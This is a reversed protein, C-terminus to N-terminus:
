IKKLYLNAVIVNVSGTRVIPVANLTVNRRLAVTTMGPGRGRLWLRAFNEYLFHETEVTKVRRL